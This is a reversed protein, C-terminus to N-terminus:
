ARIRTPVCRTDAGVAVKKVTIVPATRIEIKANIRLKGSTLDTDGAARPQNARIPAM